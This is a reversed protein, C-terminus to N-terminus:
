GSLHLKCQQSSSDLELFSTAREDAMKKIQSNLDAQALRGVYRDLNRMDAMRGSDIPDPSLSSLMPAFYDGPISDEAIFRINPGAEAAPRSTPQTDAPADALPATTSAHASKAAESVLSCFLKIYVPDANSGAVYWTAYLNGGCVM